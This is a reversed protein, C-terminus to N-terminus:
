ASVEATINHEGAHICDADACEGAPRLRRFDGYTGDRLDLVRWGPRLPEDATPTGSISDAAVIRRETDIRIATLGPLEITIVAGQTVKIDSM